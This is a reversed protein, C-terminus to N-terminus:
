GFAAVCSSCSSISSCSASASAQFGSGGSATIERSNCPAPESLSMCMGDKGTFSDSSDSNIWKGIGRCQTSNICGARSSSSCSVAPPCVGLVNLMVKSCTNRCRSEVVAYYNSNGFRDFCPIIFVIENADKVCRGVAGGCQVSASYWHGYQSTCSECTTCATVNTPLCQSQILTLLSTFIIFLLLAPAAFLMTSDFHIQGVGNLHCAECVEAGISATEKMM